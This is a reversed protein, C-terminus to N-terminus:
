RERDRERECVCLEMYACVCVCVCVVGVISCRSPVETVVVVLRVPTYVFFITERDGERGGNMMMMTTPITPHKQSVTTYLMFWCVLFVFQCGVFVSWLGLFTM